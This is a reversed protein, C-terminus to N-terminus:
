YFLRKKFISRYITKNKRKNENQTIKTHLIKRVEQVAKIHWDQFQERVAQWIELHNSDFTMMAEEIDEEVKQLDEGQL